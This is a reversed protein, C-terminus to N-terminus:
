IFFIKNQMVTQTDWQEFAFLFLFIMEVMRM